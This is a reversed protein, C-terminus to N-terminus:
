ATDAGTWAATLTSASATALGFNSTQVLFVGSVSKVRACVSWGICCIRSWGFRKQLRLSSHRFTSLLSASHPLANMAIELSLLPVGVSIHGSRDSWTLTSTESSSRNTRPNMCSFMLLLVAYRGSSIIHNRLNLGTFGNAPIDETAGARAAISMPASARLNLRRNKMRDADGASMMSLLSCNTFSVCSCSIYARHSSRSNCGCLVCRGITIPGPSSRVRMPIVCRSMSNTAASSHDTSSAALAKPTGFTNRLSNSSAVSAFTLVISCNRHRFVIMGSSRINSSPNFRCRAGCKSCNLPCIWARNLRSATSAICSDAFSRALLSADRTVEPIMVVSSARVSSPSVVFWYCLLGFVGGDCKCGRGAM